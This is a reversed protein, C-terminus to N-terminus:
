SNEKGDNRSGVAAGHSYQGDTGRDCKRGYRIRGFFRTQYKSESGSFINKGIGFIQYISLSDDANDRMDPLEGDNAAIYEFYGKLKM